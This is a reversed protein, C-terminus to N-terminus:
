QRVLPKYRLRKPAAADEGLTERRWREYEDFSGEFWRVHSDGEFVLLHTAVRDLFWRDHSIVVACGAFRELADELARLTDVDLDNTPEDLLLLNAGTRLLKALHLRNREGGSLDGPRHTARATLGVADLAELAMELRRRRPVGAYLLGDAVNELATLREVLHFQQFVFGIFVNRIRALTNEDLDAVDHGALRFAGSTPVDLCGLIHMLTSKGSGSPGIVAAFEGADVKLSVSRLAAVELMGTSYTKMVDVLEVLPTGEEFPLPRAIANM